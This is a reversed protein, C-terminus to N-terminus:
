EAGVIPGEAVGCERLPGSTTDRLTVWSAAFRGALLDIRFHAYRRSTVGLVTLAADPGLECEANATSYVRESEVVHLVCGGFDTVTAYGGM